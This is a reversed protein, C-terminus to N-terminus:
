HYYQQNNSKYVSFYTETAKYLTNLNDNNGTMNSIHMIIYDLIVSIKNKRSYCNIRYKNDKLKSLLHRRHEILDSQLLLFTRIEDKKCYIERGKGKIHM